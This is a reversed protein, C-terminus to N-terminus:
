EINDIFSKIESSIFQYEYNHVYHPCDLEILKANEAEQVFDSQCVTWQAKDMGTGQGNSCFLLMPVQPVAGAAVKAASEKICKVEAIMTTTSTRSYFVARCIDKEEPTLTGYKVADGDAIGLFRTIGIRAGFQGLRIIFMNIPYDKYAAPVAMDLGIIASVEDPYKQAWYLSEIGSMSHPCLVFPGEIGAQKLATRTNELVSDVDREVDAIDSFGYGLKEVVVIRYEDSLLSYLSRFDMVPSSTGGGSLFVLTKEGAGETYVNMRGGEVEVLQGIPSLLSSERRLQIRHNIYSATILLFVIGVICASVILLRKKMDLVEM